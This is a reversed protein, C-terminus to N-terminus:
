PTLFLSLCVLSSINSGSVKIGLMLKVVRFFLSVFSGVKPIIIRLIFISKVCNTKKLNKSEPLIKNIEEKKNISFLLIVYSFICLTLFSNKHYWYNALCIHSYKEICNVSLQLYLCILSPTHRTNPFFRYNTAGRQLKIIM